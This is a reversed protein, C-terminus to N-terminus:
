TNILLPINISNGWIHRLVVLVPIQVARQSVTWDSMQIKVVPNRGDSHMIVM